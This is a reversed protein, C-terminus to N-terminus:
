AISEVTRASHFLAGRRQRIGGHAGRGHKEGEGEGRDGSGGRALRQAVPDLHVRRRREGVHQAPAQAQPAPALVGLHRRLPELAEDGLGRAFRALGGGGLAIEGRPDGGGDVLRGFRAGHVHADLRALARSDARDLDAEAPRRGPVRFRAALELAHALL